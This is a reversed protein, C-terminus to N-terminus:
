YVSPCFSLFFTWVVSLGFSLTDWFCTSKLFCDCRDFRCIRLGIFLKWVCPPRSSWRCILWCVADVLLSCTVILWYFRDLLPPSHVIQSVGMKQFNLYNNHLTETTDHFTVFRRPDLALLALTLSKRDWVQRVVLTYGTHRLIPVLHSYVRLHPNRM